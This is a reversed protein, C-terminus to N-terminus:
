EFIIMHYIIIDYKFSENTIVPFRFGLVAILSKPYNALTVSSHSDDIIKNLDM